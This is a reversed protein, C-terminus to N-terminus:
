ARSFIIWLIRYIDSGMAALFCIFYDDVLNRFINAELTVMKSLYKHTNWFVFEKCKAGMGIELDLRLFSFRKGM